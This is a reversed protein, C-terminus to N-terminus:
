QSAVACLTLCGEHGECCHWWTQICASAQYQLGLVLAWVICQPSPFGVLMSTKRVAPRESLVLTHATLQGFHKDLRLLAKHVEPSTFHAPESRKFEPLRFSYENERSYCCRLQMNDSGSKKERERKKLHPHHGKSLLLAHFQTFHKPLM